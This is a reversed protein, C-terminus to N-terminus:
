HLALLPGTVGFTQAFVSSLNTPQVLPNLRRTRRPHNRPKLHKPTTPPCKASTVFAFFILNFTLLFGTVVLTKP